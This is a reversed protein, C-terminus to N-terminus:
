FEKAGFESKIFKSKNKNSNFNYSLNLTIMDVEYVYNTTTFFSGQNATTIRQENTELLGLDMNQWQITAALRNDLFTKRFTLNPSYFRSDKGQATVRESLYNLTFQLSTSANFQYTSNINVSYQTANNNIKESFTTGNEEYVFNGDIDLNNINIGIFNSWKETPKLQAGLELGLSQGRGVNSYIRDLITDNFVKNVRNVLNKVNRFYATAYVSNGKKYRKSIGIEFLDVFEPKLNKDGQELTESHERERFPNMKFTTTRQVRRSYAAKLKAKNKLSYQVSASPFLQLYDFPIVEPTLQDAGQLTLERDMKELRLGAAYEWKEKKNSLNVYGSHLTRKLDIASTFEPVTEFVGTSNNRRTYEFDGEHDLFRYQYGTELKGFSFQAFEYDVRFLTGFLPNDNTNFEDQIIETTDPYGLNRNTTPGGLLTYEYLFSASLKSNDTFKHAYDFSGLAFDSRRIRLNENFYQFTYLRNNSNTPQVANNDFYLIDARREKNRKGAFFGLSFENNENPTFDLTINGSINEEDFSREGDSPFSTKIGNEITFVDGERRGSKDNRQYSAGLSFNWKDKRYNYTADIGYRKASESNNYDEISPAGIRTNIQAFTGNLAGKKTFINLIGAKGEPDYKASPATIVEVKDIANAPIQSLITAPNGQVPKGNLLIVFGTTGRVAIDGTGNISVSPLNKIVDTGTGGQSNQFNNADFVQKDIKSVVAARESKIVVENLANGISLKLIGLDKKDGSFVINEIKNPQYGIFSIEISYIGKKLKDFSFVGNTNTVVGSILNKPSQNYLAITAYELPTNDEKDLVTGTLQAFGIQSILTLIGLILYSKLNVKM